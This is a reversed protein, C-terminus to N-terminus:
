SANRVKGGGREYRSVANIDKPEMKNVKEEIKRDDDGEVRKGTIDSERNMNPIPTPPSYGRDADDAESRAM